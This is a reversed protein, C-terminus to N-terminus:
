KDSFNQITDLIAVVKAINKKVFEEGTQVNLVLLLGHYLVVLKARHTLRRISRQLYHRSVM